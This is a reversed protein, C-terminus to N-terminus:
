GPASVPRCGLERALAVAVKPAVEAVRGVGTLARLTAAGVGDLGCAKIGAYPAIDVDVNLSLGHYSCGRRVRLGLAAIKDGEVYVGPAGPRTRGAVDYGALVGILAREIGCVLQRVALGLRRLDLLLYAVLQGPGHYTIQGGRDSQVVPIDGAALLYERRGAQGLTFVPQHETLWLEDATAAARNDTFARMANLVEQYVTDAGLDRVILVREAALSTPPVSPASRVRSM